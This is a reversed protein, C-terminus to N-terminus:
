KTASIFYHAGMPLWALHKEMPILGKLFSPFFISFKVDSRSFGAKRCLSSAYFHTLLKSNKDFRYDNTIAVYMTAPNLPNLEFIFMRGDDKLAERLLKMTFLQQPRPIHHFVGAVFVIDFKEEFPLKELDYVGYHCDQLNSNAAVATKISESSVDCGCVTSNPFYKKLYKEASGVGCGFDLIKLARDSFEGGLIDRMRRPKYEHFYDPEFGSLKVAEKLGENYNKAFQDFLETKSQDEM